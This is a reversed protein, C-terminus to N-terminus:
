FWNLFSFPFSDANEDMEAYNESQFLLKQRETLEFCQYDEGYQYLLTHNLEIDTEMGLWSYM